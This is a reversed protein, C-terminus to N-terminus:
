VARIAFEPCSSTCYGCTLCKEPNIRAKKKEEDFDIAMNPCANLCSRCGKCLSEVAIFRKQERSFASLKEEEYIGNFYNVNFDVEEKSVMGVAITHHLNLGRVFDMAKRYDQLLAGGGLAKMIMIGKGARYAKEIARRMDDVSGNLIGLGKLNILPFIVDMDDRSAALGVVKVNHTSIGIAKIYGRAKYDTLCKLAGKRIEFVDEDVRAAHLFFIDIYNRDLSRLAEDIAREMEEYTAAASKTSIVPNIGTLKIANRIPDYTRYLQATDVFNIGRKLAHAVVETASELDLNKQLPGMPLAGFCLETVEIGTKGLIKKEM